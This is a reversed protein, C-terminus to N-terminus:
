GDNQQRAAEQRMARGFAILTRDKARVVCPYEQADPLALFWTEQEQKSADEYWVCTLGSRGLGATLSHCVTKLEELLDQQGDATECALLMDWPLGLLTHKLNRYFTHEEDRELRARQAALSDLLRGLEEDGTGEAQLNHVYQAETMSPVYGKQDLRLLEEHITELQNLLYARGQKTSGDKTAAEANLRVQEGYGLLRQIRNIIGAQGTFAEALSQCSRKEEELKAYALYCRHSLSGHGAAAASGSLARQRSRREAAFIASVKYIVVTAALILALIGLEKM